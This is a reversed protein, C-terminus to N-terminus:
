PAAPRTSGGAAQQEVSLRSTHHRFHAVVLGEVSEHTITGDVRRRALPTVREIHELACVVAAEHAAEILDRLEPDSVAWLVSVSKPASFTCDVAAVHEGGQSCRVLEEGTIPDRGEWVRLLQERTVEGTLALAAAARGHWQGPAHDHVGEPGLYYDSRRIADESALYQAYGAADAGGIKHVTMM